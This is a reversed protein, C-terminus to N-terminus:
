RQVKDNGHQAERTVMRGNGNTIPSERRRMRQSQNGGYIIMSFVWSDLSAVRTPSARERTGNGGRSERVSM